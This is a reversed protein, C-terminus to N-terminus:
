TSSSGAPQPTHTKLALGLDIIAQHAAQVQELTDFYIVLTQPYSACAAHVGFVKELYALTM